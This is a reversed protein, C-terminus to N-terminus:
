SRLFRGRFEQSLFPLHGAARIIEIRVEGVMEKFFMSNFPSIVDRAGYFLWPRKSICQAAFLSSADKQALYELGKKLGNLDIRSLHIDLLEEKFWRYDEKQGLFARRYFRRMAGEFDAELDREQALLEEKAFSPRLSVLILGSVMWVYDLCFDVAQYAGMSWGFLLVSQIGYARLFDYLGRSIDGNVPRTPLIYNFPLDLRSFIEPLFGWGPLLVLSAGFGKDIFIFNM